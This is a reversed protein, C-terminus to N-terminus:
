RRAGPKSKASRARAGYQAPSTTLPSPAITTPINTCVCRPKLTTAVLQQGRHNLAIKVDSCKIHLIDVREIKCILIRNQDTTTSTKIYRM